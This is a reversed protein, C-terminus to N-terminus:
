KFIMEFFIIEGSKDLIRIVTSGIVQFYIHTDLFLSELEEDNKVVIEISPLDQDNLIGFIKTEEFDEETYEIKLHVSLQHSHFIPATTGFTGM